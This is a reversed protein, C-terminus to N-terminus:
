HLLAIRTIFFPFFPFFPGLFLNFLAMCLLYALKEPLDILVFLCLKRIPEFVVASLVEGDGVAGFIQKSLLPLGVFDALVGTLFLRM